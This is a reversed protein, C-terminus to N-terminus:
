AVFRLLNLQKLSNNFQNGHVYMFRIKNYVFDFLTKFKISYNKLQIFCEM